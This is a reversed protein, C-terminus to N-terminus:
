RCKEAGVQESKDVLQVPALTFYLLFLINSKQRRALPIIVNVSQVFQNKRERKTIRKVKEIM